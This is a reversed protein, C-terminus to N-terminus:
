FCKVVISDLYFDDFRIHNSQKVDKIKYFLIRFDFIIVFIFLNIVGSQNAYEMIEKTLKLDAYMKDM